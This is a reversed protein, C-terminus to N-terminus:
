SQSVPVSPWVTLHRIILVPYEYEVEDLPLTKSGTVEGVLTVRSRPPLVAPDLFEEIASSFLDQEM